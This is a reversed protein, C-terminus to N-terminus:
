GMGRMSLELELAWSARDIFSHPWGDEPTELQYVPEKKPGSLTRSLTEMAANARASASAGNPFYSDLPM